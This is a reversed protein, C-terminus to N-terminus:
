QSKPEDKNNIDDKSTEESFIQTLAQSIRAILINAQKNNYDLVEQYLEPYYHFYSLDKIWFYVFILLIPRFACCDIFTDTDQKTAKCYAVVYSFYWARARVFWLYRRLFLIAVFISAFIRLLNIFNDM